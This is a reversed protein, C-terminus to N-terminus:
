KADLLKPKQFHQYDITGNELLWDGGWDWGRIKMYQVLPHAEFLTGPLKPNWKAEPPSVIQGGSVKRIYPNQYDNVDIALGYSHLSVKDSGAILRYNFGSTANAAALKEDNWQYQPDSTRCVTQIPFKISVALEFFGKVDKVVKDNVEIVGTHYTGDFGYYSVELSTLQRLIEAPCPHEPNVLITM